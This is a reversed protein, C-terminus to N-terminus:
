EGFETIHEEEEEEENCDKHQSKHVTSRSEVEIHRARSRIGLAASQLRM